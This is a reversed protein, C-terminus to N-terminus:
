MKHIEKFWKPEFAHKAYYAKLRKNNNEKDLPENFGLFRMANGGLFNDTAQTGYRKRFEESFLQYYKEHDRKRIIMSWDSGYMIRSLLRKRDKKSATGSGGNLFYEFREFYKDPEEMAEDHHGVDAYVHPMKKDLMMERITFTWKRDFNKSYELHGVHGLNIRLNKFKKNKLLLKWWEPHARGLPGNSKGKYMPHSYNSNTCHTMIPVENDVCWTFLRELEMDLKRGFQPDDVGFFKQGENQTARFGMPPYLKVGITGQHKIANKVWEFSAGEQNLARRPDFAVFPHMQGQTWRTIMEMLKMQQPIKVKAGDCDEKLWCDFDLLATTFLGIAKYEQGLDKMIKYRFKLLQKAWLLYGGVLGKNAMLQGAPDSLPSPSLAMATPTGLEKDIQEQFAQDEVSFVRFSRSKNIADNIRKKFAEFTKQDEDEWKNEWDDERIAFAREGPHELLRKLREKEREYGPALGQLAYELLQVLKKLFPLNYDRLYTEIFGKPLDEFNYIHTHIDIVPVNMISQVPKGDKQFWDCGWFATTGLAAASVTLFQRRNLQKLISTKKISRPNEMHNKMATGIGIM